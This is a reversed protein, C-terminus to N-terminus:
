LLPPSADGTVQGVQTKREMRFSLRAGGSAVNGPKAKNDVWGVALELPTVYNAKGPLQFAVDVEVTLAPEGEGFQVGAHLAPDVMHAIAVGPPQPRM